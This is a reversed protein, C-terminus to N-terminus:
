FEQEALIFGKGLKSVISHVMADDTSDTSSLFVANVAFDLAEVIKVLRTFGNGVDLSCSM